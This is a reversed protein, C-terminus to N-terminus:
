FFSRENATSAAYAISSVSLSTSTVNVQFFYMLHLEQSNTTWDFYRHMILSRGLHLTEWQYSRSAFNHLYNSPTRNDKPVGVSTLSIM